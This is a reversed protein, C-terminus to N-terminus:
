NEELKEKLATWDIQRLLKPINPYIKEHHGFESRKMENIAEEISWDEFVIRSAAVAAGTRDSGHWCHILIPKTANKITKLILFIDDETLSGAALPIEYLEVNLSGIEDRDSHHKRLNLVSRIGIEEALYSMGKATPQGCRYIEQSVQHFNKPPLQLATSSNCCCGSQLLMGILLCCCIASKKLPM